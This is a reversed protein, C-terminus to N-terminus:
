GPRYDTAALADILDDKKMSSAGSIGARSAHNKLDQASFKSWDVAEVKANSDAAQATEAEPASARDEREFACRGGRAIRADLEGIAKPDSTTFRCQEFQHRGVRLRTHQSIYTVSQTTTTPM